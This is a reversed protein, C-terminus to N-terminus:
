CGAKKFEPQYKVLGKVADLAGTHLGRVMFEESVGYENELQFDRACSFGFRSYFRPDGLVVVLDYGSRRCRQLGSVVLQSGIGQKQFEPLVGMPGLALGRIALQAPVLSIPSFLIHGVLKGSWLAVLSIPVQKAERLLEVLYAENASPLFAQQHVHRIAGIDEPREPLIKVRTM